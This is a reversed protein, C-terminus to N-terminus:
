YQAHGGAADSNILASLMIVRVQRPTVTRRAFELSKMWKLAMEKITPFGVSLALVPRHCKARSHHSRPLIVQSLITM